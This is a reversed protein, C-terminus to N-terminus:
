QQSREKQEPGEKRGPDDKLGVDWCRDGARRSATSQEVVWEGSRRGTRDASREALRQRLADRGRALRSKVTGVRCGTALAVDEVTLGELYHLALVAQYKPAVALLAARARDRTVVGNTAAPRDVPEADLPRSLRKRERRAWRNVRNTAIRYLWARVPLGRSRYRPIAQMAFMFTDAVLDEAVHRDGVRRFVYGAIPRYHRRYLVGFAARDRKAREVLEREDDTDWASPVPAAIELEM